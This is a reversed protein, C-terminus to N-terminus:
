TNVQSVEEEADWDFDDDDDDDDDDAYTRPHTSNGVGSTSPQENDGSTATSAAAAPVTTEDRGEVVERLRSTDSSSTPPQMERMRQITPAEVDNSPAPHPGM